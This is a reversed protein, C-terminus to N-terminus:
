GSPRVWATIGVMREIRVRDGPRLEQGDAGRAPFVEDDVLVGIGQGRRVLVGCRGAYADAPAVMRHAYAGAFRQALRYGTPLLILTTVLYILLQHSVAMDAKVSTVVALVFAAVALDVLFLHGGFLAATVLLLIGGALWIWSPDFM